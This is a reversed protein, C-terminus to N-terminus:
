HAVTFPSVPHLPCGITPQSALTDYLPPGRRVPEAISSWGLVGRCSLRLGPGEQHQHDFRLPYRSLPTLFNYMGIGPMDPAQEPLGDRM